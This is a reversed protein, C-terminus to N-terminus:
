NIGAINNPVVLRDVASVLIRKEGLRVIVAHRKNVSIDEALMAEDEELTTGYM